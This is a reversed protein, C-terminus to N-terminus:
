YASYAAGFRKKREQMNQRPVLVDSFGDALPFDPRLKLEHFISAPKFHM